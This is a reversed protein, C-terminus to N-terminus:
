YSHWSSWAQTRHNYTRTYTLDSSYPYYFQKTLAEKGLGNPNFGLGDYYWNKLIGHKATGTPPNVGNIIFFIDNKGYYADLNIGGKWSISSIPIHGELTSVRNSVSAILNNLNYGQRGDLAYGEETTILNNVINSKDVKDEVADWKKQKEETVHVDGDEIHEGFKQSLEQVDEALAYMGESIFKVTGGANVSINLVIIAKFEYLGSFKRIMDANENTAYCVAYLIEGEDPDTAYVGVETFLYDESLEKNSMAFKISYVTDSKKTASLVEFQQKESKLQTMEGTNENAQYEGNGTKVKTITVSVGEKALLALGKDTLRTKTFNTM